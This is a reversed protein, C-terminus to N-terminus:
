LFINNNVQAIHQKWNLKYDIIVCVYKLSNIRQLIVNDNDAHEDSKIRARHFVMRKGNLIVSTDDAYLVTYLCDSVNGINNM